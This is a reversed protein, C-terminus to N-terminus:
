RVVREVWRGELRRVGERFREVEAWCDLPRGEHGKLCSVVEERAKSVEQDLEELELVKNRAELKQKLSSIEAAVSERGLQRLKDGASAESPSTSDSPPSSDETSLKSTLEKLVQDERAQLRKLEEAVRAQIHL